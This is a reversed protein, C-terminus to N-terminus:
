VDVTATMLKLADTLNRNKVRPNSITELHSQPMWGRHRDALKTGEVWNDSEQHVLIIEAKELSLEDPQQAVFTRICQMQEMDQAASFDVEDHQSIASIWRLKDSQTDTRLLLYKNGMTLKFANKQVSHLKIRYNEVRLESVPCHDIVTFRGGEKPLSVVLYDNFLHLYVSRERETGKLFFDMLQTVPGERVVKRHQKVLPLTKCEFDVKGSLNVLSEINKMQSISDNSEQILKELQKLAKIAQKAEPTGPTTRKVINQVLLKLRTIRQFPLVLFSRLPLRQCVSSKELKEVIQKFGPNENMLRQYTADQYSQNTLYPVYVTRFRQCHRAIIDCVTFHLVDLELWEELKALFSHSITRVDQLRSFLWSKDQATLLSGLEQSKVFHDVVIDLSRCYSAESTLVEFRVEQLRRQDETLEELEASNRVGPLDRWLTSSQSLASSLRRRGSKTYEPVPLTRNSPLSGTHFLSHPHPVPPLPPLPRRTRTPSPIPSVSPDLVSRAQCLIELNQAAENYQQYLQGHFFKSNRKRRELVKKLEPEGWSKSGDDDSTSFIRTRRDRGVGEEEELHKPKRRKTTRHFGRRKIRVEPGLDRFSCSNTVNGVKREAVAEGERDDVEDMMKETEVASGKEHLEEAQTEEESETMYVDEGLPLDTECDYNLIPCSNPKYLSNSVHLYMEEQKERDSDTVTVMVEDDGHEGVRLDIEAKESRVEGSPGARRYVCPQEKRESELLTDAHTYAPTVVHMATLQDAYMHGQSQGMGRLREGEEEEEKLLEMEDLEPDSHEDTTLNLPVESAGEVSKENQTNDSIEPQKVVEGQQAETSPEEESQGLIERVVDKAWKLHPAQSRRKLQDSMSWEGSMRVRIAEVEEPSMAETTLQDLIPQLGDLDVPFFYDPSSSNSITQENGPEALGKNRERWEKLLRETQLDRKVTGMETYPQALKNRMEEGPEQLESSARVKINTMEERESRRRESETDQNSIDPNEDTKSPTQQLDDQPQATIGDSCHRRTELNTEDREDGGMEDNQSPSTGSNKSCPHTQGVACFNYKPKAERGEEEEDTTGSKGEIGEEDTRDDRKRGIASPSGGSWYAQCDKSEDEGGSFVAEFNEEGSTIRGRDQKWVTESGGKSMTQQWYDQGGAEEGDSMETNDAVTKGEKDQQRIGEIGGDRDYEEGDVSVSGSKREADDKCETRGIHREKYSRQDLHREDPEEKVHQGDRGWDGQKEMSMEDEIGQEKQRIHMEEDVFEKSNKGKRPELWMRSQELVSGAMDGKNGQQKGKIQNREANRGREKEVTGERRSDEKSYNDRERRYRTEGDSSWEGSSQVRPPVRPPIKNPSPSSGGTRYGRGSNEEREEDRSKEYERYRDEERRSKLDGGGQKWREEERDASRAARPDIDRYRDRDDRAGKRKSRDVEKDRQRQRDEERYGQKDRGRERAMKGMSDGESRRHQYTLEENARDRGRERRLEREDIDRESRGKMDRSDAWERRGDQYQTNSGQYRERQRVKEDETYGRKAEDKGRSRVEDRFDDRQREREREREDAGARTPRDRQRREEKRDGREPISMTQRDPDPSKRDRPFPHDKMMGRGGDHEPERGVNSLLKGNRNRDNENRRDRPRPSDGRHGEYSRAPTDVDKYRTKESESKKWQYEERRNNTDRESRTIMAPRPSPERYIKEGPQLSRDSMNVNPLTYFASDSPRKTEM